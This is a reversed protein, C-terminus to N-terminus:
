KFKKRQQRKFALQPASGIELESAELRRIEDRIRAAEEFELNAAANQMKQELSAVTDRMSKGVMPGTETSVEVRDGREHVSSLIDKIQSSVTEPTINNATNYALQKARRRDTESIAYDISGTISDAYLIVRGDINRAARGITQVLSTRSRLYGEKDADLIAVLACEPIDLGE